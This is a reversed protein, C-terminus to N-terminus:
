ERRTSSRRARTRPQPHRGDIRRRHLPREEGRVGRRAAAADITLVNANVVALNPQREGVCGGPPTQAHATVDADPWRGLTFAGALAAGFGLFEGRTYKSMTRANQGM